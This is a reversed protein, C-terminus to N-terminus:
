PGCARSRALKAPRWSPNASSFNKVWKKGAVWKARKIGLSACVERALIPLNKVSLYMHNKVFFSCSRALMDEVVRPMATPAGRKSNASQTGKLVRHLKSRDVGYCKGAKRISLKGASVAAAAATLAAAEEARLDVPQPRKRCCPSSISGARPM